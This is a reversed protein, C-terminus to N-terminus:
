KGKAAKKAAASTAKADKAAAKEQESALKAAAAAEEAKRAAENAAIEAQREEPTMTQTREVEKEQAKASMGKVPNGHADHFTDSGPADEYLGGPVTNGM